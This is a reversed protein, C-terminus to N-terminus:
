SRLIYVFQSPSDLYYTLYKKNQKKVKFLSFCIFLVCVLWVERNEIYKREYVNKFFFFFLLIFFVIKILLVINQKKEKKLFSMNYM